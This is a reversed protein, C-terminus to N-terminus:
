DAGSPVPNPILQAQSEAPYGGIDEVRLDVFGGFYHLSLGLGERLNIKPECDLIRKAKSVDPRRRTPDDKPLPEFRICSSSGTVDLVAQACELVTFEM